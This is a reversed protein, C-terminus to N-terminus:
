TTSKISNNNSNILPNIEVVYNMFLSVIDYSKISSMLLDFEINIRSFIVLISLIINSPFSFAGYILPFLIRIVNM